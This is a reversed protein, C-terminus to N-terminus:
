AGRPLADVRVIWARLRPYGDGLALNEALIAHFREDDGPPMGLGYRLFPWAAVDAAGFPGLLFDGAHLLAEFRELSGRLEAALAQLRAADPAPQAEEAEIANPAVKWVRDFWDLFVDGRAREAPDRPFLAPEPRRAELHRVIALSDPVVRGDDLLVPVLPQGSAALVPARDAPDVPVLEADLGKHGLALRVREVNTSFPTALLQV